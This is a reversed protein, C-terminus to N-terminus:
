SVRMLGAACKWCFKANEGEVDGMTGFPGRPWYLLEEIAEEDRLM